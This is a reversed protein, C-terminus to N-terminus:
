LVSFAVYGAVVAALFLMLLWREAHSLQRWSVLAPWRVGCRKGATAMIVNSGVLWVGCGIVLVSVAVIHM